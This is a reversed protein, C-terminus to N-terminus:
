TSRYTPVQPQNSLRLFLDRVTDESEESPIIKESRLLSEYGLAYLLTMWSHYLEMSELISPLFDLWKLNWFDTKLLLIALVQDQQDRQDSYKKEVDEDLVL